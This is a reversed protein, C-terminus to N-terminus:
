SVRDLHSIEYENEPNVPQTPLGVCEQIQDRM